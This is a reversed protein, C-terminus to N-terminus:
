NIYVGLHSSTKEGDNVTKDVHYKDRPKPLEISNKRPSHSRRWSSKALIEQHRAKWYASPISSYNEMRDIWLQETELLSNDEEEEGLIQQPLVPM